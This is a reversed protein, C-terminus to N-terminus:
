TAIPGPILRAIRRGFGTTKQWQEKGPIAYVAPLPLIGRIPPPRALLLALEDPSENFYFMATIVCSYPHLTSFIRPRRRNCTEYRFASPETWSVKLIGELLSGNGGLVFRRSSQKRFATILRRLKSKKKAHYGTLIIDM